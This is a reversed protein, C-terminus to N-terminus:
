GVCCGTLLTIEISEPISTKADCLVKVIEGLPISLSLRLVKSLSEIALASTAM